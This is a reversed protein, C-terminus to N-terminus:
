LPGNSARGTAYPAPPCAAASLNCANGTDDLSAGFVVTTGFLPPTVAATASDRGSAALVGVSAVAILSRRVHLSLFLM